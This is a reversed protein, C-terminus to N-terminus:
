VGLDVATTDQRITDLVVDVAEHLDASTLRFCGAGKVIEALHLVARKSANHFRFRNKVLQV